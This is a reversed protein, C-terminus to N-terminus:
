EVDELKGYVVEGFFLGVWVNYMDWGIECGWIIKFVGFIIYVFNVDEVLVLFVNFLVVFFEDGVIVKDVDFDVLVWVVLLSGKGGNFGCGIIDVDRIYRGGLNVFLFIVLYVVDIWVVFLFLIVVVVLYM